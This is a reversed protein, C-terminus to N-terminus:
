EGSETHKTPSVGFWKKYARTFSPQDNYGLSHAIEVLPLGQHIKAVAMDKLVRAKIDKFCTGKVRLARAMSRESLGLAKAVSTKSTSNHEISRRIQLEIRDVLSEEELLENLAMDYKMCIKALEEHNAMAFSADKVGEQLILAYEKQGFKIDCDFLEKYHEIPMIAEHKINVQQVAKPTKWALWNISTVFNTMILETLQRYDENQGQEFKPVWIMRDQGGESIVGSPTGVTHFLPCYHNYLDAAHKLNECLKLFEAPRTYQLIPYKLGCRIGLLSDELTMAAFNLMKVLTEADVRDTKPLEGLGAARLCNEESIHFESIVSLVQTFYRLSTGPM